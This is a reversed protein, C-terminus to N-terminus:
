LFDDPVAPTVRSDPAGDAFEEADTPLDSDSSPAPAAPTPSVTPAAPTLSVPALAPATAPGVPNSGRDIAPQSASSMAEASKVRADAHGRAARLAADSGFLGIAVLGGWQVTNTLADEQETTLDYVGFVHLLNAIVPVGAVLLALVQAPTVDPRQGQFIRLM